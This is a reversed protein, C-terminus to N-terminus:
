IDRRMFSWYSIGIFLAIFVMSTIAAHPYSLLFDFTLDKRPIADAFRYLPFPMLDEFANSPYYNITANKVMRFHIVWKLFHEILMVYTIYMLVAVGSRRVLFAIVFALSMYGLSMLFFRGIAWKNDFAMSLTADETHVFGIVLGIVAYLLTGFAALVMMSSFKSLFYTKRTYGTIVNQRMTKYGVESTILFIVILGLFFFVLWSGAYGLYDWMTPFEFFIRNDPLPKPVNKFEKGVFIVTPMTIVFMIALLSVVANKSFKLWETHLLNIINM